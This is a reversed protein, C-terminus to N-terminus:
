RRLKSIEHAMKYVHNSVFTQLTWPPVGLRKLFLLLSRQMLRRGWKEFKGCVARINRVGNIYYICECSHPSTCVSTKGNGRPCHNYLMMEQMEETGQWWKDGRTGSPANFSGREPLLDTILRSEVVRNQQQFTPSHTFGCWPSNSEWTWKGLARDKSSCQVSILFAPGWLIWGMTRIQWQAKTKGTKLYPCLVPGGVEGFVWHFLISSLVTSVM